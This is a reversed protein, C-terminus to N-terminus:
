MYYVNKNGHLLHLEQLINWSSTEETVNSFKYSVRKEKINKFYM